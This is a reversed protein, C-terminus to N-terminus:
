QMDGLYSYARPLRSGSHGYTNALRDRHPDPLEVETYCAGTGTIAGRAATGILPLYYEAINRLRPPSSRRGAAPAWRGGGGGKLRGAAAGSAHLGATTLLAM